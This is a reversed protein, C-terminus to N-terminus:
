WKLNYFNFMLSFTFLVFMILQHCRGIYKETRDYIIGIILLTVAESIYNIGFEWKFQQKIWLYKEDCSRMIVFTKSMHKLQLHM